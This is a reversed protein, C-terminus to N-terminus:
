RYTLFSSLKSPLIKREHSTKLIKAQLDHSAVIQQRPTLAEFPKISPGPRPLKSSDDSSLLNLKRKLVQNASNLDKVVVQSAEQESKLKNVEQAQGVCDVNALELQSTAAHLRAQLAAIQDIYSSESRRNDDEVRGTAGVEEEGTALADEPEM